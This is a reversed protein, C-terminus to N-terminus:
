VLAVTFFATSTVFPPGFDGKSWVWESWGGMNHKHQTETTHDPLSRRV